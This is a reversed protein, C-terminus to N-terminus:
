SALSLENALPIFGEFHTSRAIRLRTVRFTCAGREKPM